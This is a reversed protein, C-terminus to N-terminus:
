VCVCVDERSQKEPSGQSICQRVIIEIAIDKAEQSVGGKRNGKGRGQNGRVRELGGLSMVQAM